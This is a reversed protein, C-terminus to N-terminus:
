SERIFGNIGVKEHLIYLFKLDIWNRSYMYVILIYAFNTLFVGKVRSIAEPTKKSGLPIFHKM